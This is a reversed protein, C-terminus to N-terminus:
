NQDRHNQVQNAPFVIEVFLLKLKKNTGQEHQYRKSKISPKGIHTIQDKKTPM